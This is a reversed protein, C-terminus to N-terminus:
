NSHLTEIINCTRPLRVTEDCFGYLRNFDDSLEAVKPSVQMKVIWKKNYRDM